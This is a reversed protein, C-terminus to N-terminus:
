SSDKKDDEHIGIERVEMFGGKQKVVSPVAHLQLREIILANTYFVPRNLEQSLESYSGDTLLLTVGADKFYESSKFWNIQNRDQGDLFVLTQPFVVYDLPNFTYGQPYLIGGKGDPIDFQLTYSMDISFIRDEEASPLPKLGDPKFHAIKKKMEGTNVSSEWDIQGAREKIEKLADKEAIPYTAGVVGLNRASVTVSM